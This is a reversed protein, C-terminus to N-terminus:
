GIVMIPSCYINFVGSFFFLISYKFFFSLSWKDKRCKKLSLITNGPERFTCVIGDHFINTKFELLASSVNQKNQENQFDFKRQRGQMLIGLTVTLGRCENTNFLFFLLCRNQSLMITISYSQCCLEATIPGQFSFEEGPAWLPTLATCLWDIDM